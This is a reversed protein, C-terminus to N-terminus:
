FRRSVAVVVTTNCHDTGAPCSDHPATSGIVSLEFTFGLAEIGVGAKFDLVPSDQEAGGSPRPQHHGLYGVHGLLVIRSTLQHVANLEVYVASAGTGFYNDSYYARANLNEYTVGLFGETYHYSPETTPRPFLVTTLGAEWSTRENLAHAYGGYIQGGLGSVEPDLRVTSALGGIFIGSPHQYDLGGQLAPQRDSLSEGRYRYDSLLAVHGSLQARAAAPAALSV